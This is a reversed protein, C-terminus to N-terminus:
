KVRKLIKVAHNSWWRPTADWNGFQTEVAFHAQIYNTLTPCFNENMCGIGPEHCRNSLLVWNVRKKELSNIIELQQQQQYDIIMVMLLKTPAKKETLFYYLPDYPLALFLENKKLHSNLYATAELVTQVWSSDNSIEINTNSIKFPTRQMQYQSYLISNPIQIFAITLIFLAVFVKKYVSAAHLACGIIGFMLLIKFPEAWYGQYFAGVMLFEHLSLVYFIMTAFFALLIQKQLSPDLSKKNCLIVCQLGATNILIAFAIDAWSSFIHIILQYGNVLINIPISNPQQSGLIGSIYYANANGFYPLCQRIYYFPLNQLFLWYIFIIISPLGLLALFYFSAPHKKEISCKVFVIITTSLLAAFGFNLKILALVLVFILSIYLLKQNSSKIYRLICYSILLLVALGGAHNFTNPFDKLFIWFWIAGIASILRPFFLALNFYILLGATLLLLYKGLLISQIGGNFIKLFLAYYYPMAPGYFWMFDQYPLDGKLIAQAAYLNLGHDGQSLFPIFTTLPKLLLAGITLLAFFYSKHGVGSPPFNIKLALKGNLYGHGM